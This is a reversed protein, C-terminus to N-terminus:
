LSALEEYHAKSILRAIATGGFTTGDNIIPELRADAIFEKTNIVMYGKYMGLQPGEVSLRARDAKVQSTGNVLNVYTSFNVALKDDTVTAYDADPAASLLEKESIWSESVVYAIIASSPSRRIPHVMDANLDALRRAVKPLTYDQYTFIGDNKNIVTM